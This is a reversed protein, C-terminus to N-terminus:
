LKKTIQTQLPTIKYLSANNRSQPIFLDVKGHSRGGAEVTENWPSSLHGPLTSTPRRCESVWPLSHLCWRIPINSAHIQFHVLFVQQTFHQVWRGCLLTVSLYLGIIGYGTLWALSEPGTRDSFVIFTNAIDTHNQNKDDRAFVTGSCLAEESPETNLSWYYLQYQGPVTVTNDQHLQIRINFYCDGTMLSGIPRADNTTLARVYQPFRAKIVVGSEDTNGALVGQFMLKGVLFPLFVKLTSRWARENM